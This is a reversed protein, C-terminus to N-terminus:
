NDPIFLKASNVICYDMYYLSDKDDLDQLQSNNFKTMRVSGNERAFKIGRKRKLEHPPQIDRNKISVHKLDIEYTFDVGLNPMPIRVFTPFPLKYSTIVGAGFDIIFCQGEQFLNESTVLIRFNFEDFQITKTHIWDEEMKFETTKKTSFDYKVYKKSKFNDSDVYFVAFNKTLYPKVHDYGSREHKLLTTPEISDGWCDIYRMIIERDGYILFVLHNQLSIYDLSHNESKVELVVQKITDFIWLTLFEFDRIEVIMKDKTVGVCDKSDANSEVYPRKAVLQQIIEGSELPLLRLIVLENKTYGVCYSGLTKFWEFSCLLSEQKWKSKTDKTANVLSHSLKFHRWTCCDSELEPFLTEFIQKNPLVDIVINNWHKCIIRLKYLKIPDFKCALLLIHLFNDNDITNM